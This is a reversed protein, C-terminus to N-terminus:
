LKYGWKQFQEQLQPDNKFARYYISEPALDAGNPWVITELDKDVRLQAFLSKDKLPQFVSGRLASKLDAVGVKGDNFKVEVEYDKLYKAETIHLIM